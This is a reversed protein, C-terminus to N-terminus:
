WPCSMSGEEARGLDAAVIINSDGVDCWHIQGRHDSSSHHGRHDSSSHRVSKLSWGVGVGACAGLGSLQGSSEVCKHHVTM